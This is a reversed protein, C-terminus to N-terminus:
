IEGVTKELDAIRDFLDQILEFAENLGSTSSNSSSCPTNYTSPEESFKTYYEKNQNEAIQSNHEKLFYEVKDENRIDFLWGNINNSWVGGIKRLLPEYVDHVIEGELEIIIKNDGYHRKSFM